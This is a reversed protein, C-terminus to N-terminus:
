VGYHAKEWVNNAEGRRAEGPITDVVAIHIGPIHQNGLDHPIGGRHHRQFVM